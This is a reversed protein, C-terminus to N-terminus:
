RPVPRRSTAGCRVRTTEVRAEVDEVDRRRHEVARLSHELVDDLPGRGSTTSTSASGTSATSQTAMRSSLGPGASKRWCRM